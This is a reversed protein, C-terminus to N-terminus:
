GPGVLESRSDMDIGFDLNKFLPKQGEYGFTVGSFFLGNIIKRTVRFTHGGLFPSCGQCLPPYTTNLARLPWEGHLGLVPPSLPPPDPFTFRVTYERPRKLLEPPDQSEEDQNKRRCKQQKRTLVEKTQKEAQKTSKGGAKLEKLKKEQKEYQKLLEKQKQQYM